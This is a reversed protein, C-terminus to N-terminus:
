FDGTLIAINMYTTEHYFALVPILEKFWAYLILLDGFCITCM